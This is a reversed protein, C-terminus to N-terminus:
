TVRDLTEIQFFNCSGSLPDRGEQATMCPGQTGAAGENKQGHAVQM